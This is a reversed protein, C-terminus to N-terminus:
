PRLSTCNALLLIAPFPKISACYTSSFSKELSIPSSARLCAENQYSKLNAFGPLWSFGASLYKHRFARHSARKRRCRGAMVSPEKRRDIRGLLPDFVATRDAFDIESACSHGQGTARGASYVRAIFTRNYRIDRLITIKTFTRVCGPDGQCPKGPFRGSM